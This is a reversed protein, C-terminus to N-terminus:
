LMKFIVLCLKMAQRLFVNFHAVRQQQEEKAKGWWRRSKEGEQGDYEMGMEEKARTRACKVRTILVDCFSTPNTRAALSFPLHKRWQYEIRLSAANILNLWSRYKFIGSTYCWKENEWHKGSASKHRNEGRRANFASWFSRHRQDLQLQACWARRGLRLGLSSRASSDWTSGSPFIRHFVQKEINQFANTDNWIRNRLKDDKFGSNWATAASLDTLLWWTRPWLNSGRRIKGLVECTFLNGSSAWSVRTPQAPPM